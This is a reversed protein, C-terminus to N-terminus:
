PANGYRLSAIIRNAVSKTLYKTVYSAAQSNEGEAVLNFKTFGWSWLETLQKHRVPGATEHVLMHVHPAGSKHREFVILHRIGPHGKRIRKLYRQLEATLPRCREKFQETDNLQDYIVGRARLEHSAQALLYFQKEPCLTLTGFWTRNANAIETRARMRWHAARARLCADCKRCRVSLDINRTVVHDLPNGFTPLHWGRVADWDQWPCDSSQAASWRLKALTKDTQGTLGVMVPRECDGSMPAHDAGHMRAAYSYERAAGDGIVTRGFRKAM